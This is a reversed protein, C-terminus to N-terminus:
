MEVFDRIHAIREFEAINQHRPLRLWRSFAKILCRDIVAARDRYRYPSIGTPLFARRIEWRPEYYPRANVEARIFDWLRTIMSQCVWQITYGHALAPGLSPNVAAKIANQGGGCIYSVLRSWRTTCTVRCLRTAHPPTPTQLSSPALAGNGSVFYGLSFRHIVTTSVRLLALAYSEGGSPGRSGNSIWSKM